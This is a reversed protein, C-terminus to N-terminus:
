SRDRPSPSTYLLCDWYEMGGVPVWSSGSHIDVGSSIIRGYLNGDMDGINNVGYSVVLNGAGPTCFAPQGEPYVNYWIGTIMDRVRIGSLQATPGALAQITLPQTQDAVLIEGRRTINIQQPIGYSM